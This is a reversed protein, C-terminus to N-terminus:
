APALQLRRREAVDRQACRNCRQSHPWCLRGCDLCPHKERERDQHHSKQPALALPPIQELLEPTGPVQFRECLWQVQRQFTRNTIGIREAAQTPTLGQRVLEIITRERPSLTVADTLHLRERFETPALGLALLSVNLAEDRLFELASSDAHRSDILATRLIAILLTGHPGFDDILEDFLVEHCGPRNPM